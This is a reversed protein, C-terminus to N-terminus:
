TDWEKKKLRGKGSVFVPTELSTVAAPRQQVMSPDESGSMTDCPTGGESSTTNIILYHKVSVRTLDPRCSSGRSGKSFHFMTIIVLLIRIVEPSWGVKQFPIGAFM